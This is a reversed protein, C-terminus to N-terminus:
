EACGRTATTSATAQDLGDSITVTVSDSVVSDCVSHVPVGVPFSCAAGPLCAASPSALPAVPDGDDDWVQAPVTVTAGSFSRRLDLCVGDEWACCAGTGCSVTASAPSATLRPPHNGVTVTTVGVASSVAWPDRARVQVAHPGAFNALAPTGVYPLSCLVAANAGSWTPLMALEACAPDGTPAGPSLPDGDPDSWSSLTAAALYRSGAADFTHDVAVSAPASALVPPRNAVVVPWTQDTQAGNVDKVRFVISRELGQGGILFAADGPAGYPVVVNATVATELDEGDFAGGGDGVHHWEVSREVPDGDPDKVTVPIRAAVTFRSVNADFAHDFTPLTATIVPPSNTVSVRVAAAALVGAADRAEIRFVWDGSIATGDTEIAVSPSDAEPGPSFTVRRDAGLPRDPPPVVTWSLSADAPVGASTSSLTVASDALTCLLPTGACRHARTIDPGVTIPPPGSHPSVDILTEAPASALGQADRVVLRVAYRGACGFRVVAQSGTGAVTPPACPASVAEIGWAFSALADGPDPDHSASGDLTVLQWEELAGPVSLSAVPAVNAVCTAAVCRATAPCQEPGGCSRPQAPHGGCASALLLGLTLLKRALRRAHREMM